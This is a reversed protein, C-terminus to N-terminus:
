AACSTNEKPLYHTPEFDVEVGNVFRWADRGWYTLAFGGQPRAIRVYSGDRPARDIPSLPPTM